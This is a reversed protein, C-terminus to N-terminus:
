LVPSLAGHVREPRRLAPADVPRARQAEAEVAGSVLAKRAVRQGRRQERVAHVEDPARELVVPRAADDRRAGLLRVREHGHAAVRRALRRVQARRLDFEVFAELRMRLIAPRAQSEVEAPRVVDERRDERRPEVVLCEHPRARGPGREVFRQDAAGRPKAARRRLRVRVPVHLTKRVAVHEDDACSRGPEGGREGGGRAARAHDEGIFLRLRAARQEITTRRADIALHGVGPEGPAERFEGAIRAHAHHRARGGETVERVVAEPEHLPEGIM